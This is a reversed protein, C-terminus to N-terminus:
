RLKSVERTDIPEEDINVARLADNAHLLEGSRQLREYEFTVYIPACSLGNMAFLEDFESLKIEKM